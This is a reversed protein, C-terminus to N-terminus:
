HQRLNSFLDSLIRSSSTDVQEHIEARKNTYNSLELYKGRGSQICTNRFRELDRCLDTHASPEVVNSFSTLTPVAGQEYTM